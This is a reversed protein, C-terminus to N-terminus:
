AVSRRERYVGAVIMLLALTLAILTIVKGKEYAPDIFSLEINRAGETLPIGILTYDARATTGNKGNVTATWGPFYNESVILASGAPAPADLQISARGPEYHSVAAHISLPAPATTLSAAATVAAASDFLGASRVDFRPDLVTGLVADDAAKVIVPVVWAYPNDGPLRYLNVDVGVVDKVPGALKKAEPILRSVDPVDVLLFRVNLLHWVNPNGQQSYGQDKHLLQDYRGLENGHYGLVNRIRHVMLGDGNLNPDRVPYGLQVALVRAPQSEHKMYDITPDAAYLKAAPASFIWYFRLITWLDIACLLTIAWGVVNPALKKQRQATLILAVTLIVFAFSRWSGTMVDLSNAVVNDTRQTGAISLAISTLGGAAGLVAVLAGFVLWGYLYKKGVRRDLVREVGVATLFAIALSGVFFVSNPARFFKTGPIIAYPIRYFPTHGGLAWLTAIVLTGTWFWIESRRPNSRLSAYACGMVILVVVGVYDSHYHIGTEGWYKDLIGTFQPLYSNFIESPLLAYSTARTYDALGGARPSWPVYERVPLFQVAGIVLGIIVAGLALGLRILADRSSIEGRRQGSVLLFMGYAASALLLYQLVQPHPSLVALGIVLALLGWTWQKGDRIGRLLLLLTLPFLASVFLKGDHGPSVLSAIQGGMMYAVGGFLAGFFGFGSSRFFLYTFFGALWVHIIFGWTMAVDTPMIMRLLFTPYFIDGHMAAVFPLGGFLYPDWLPFHGTSKLTSAAFERFAYGAVYQDSNPGVLFQRALAPYGVSMTLVAYTLAAWLNAHAPARLSAAPITAEASSDSSEVPTSTKARASTAKRKM